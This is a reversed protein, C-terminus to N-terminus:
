TSSNTTDCANPAFRYLRALEGIEENRALVLVMCLCGGMGPNGRRRQAFVQAQQFFLQADLQEQAPWEPVIWALRRAPEILTDLDRQLPDFGELRSRVADAAHLEPAQFYRRRQLEHEPAERAGRALGHPIQSFCV